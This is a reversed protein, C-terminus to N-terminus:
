PSAARFPTLKSHLLGKRAPLLSLIMFIRLTSGTRQLLRLRSRGQIRTLIVVLPSQDALSEVVIEPMRTTAQMRSIPSRRTPRSGSLDLVNVPGVLEPAPTSRLAGDPADSMLRDGADIRARHDQFALCVTNGHVLKEAALHPIAHGKIPRMATRCAGFCAARTPTFGTFVSSSRLLKALCTSASPKVAILVLMKGNASIGSGSAGANVLPWSSLAFRRCASAITPAKRSDSPGSTPMAKSTPKENRM